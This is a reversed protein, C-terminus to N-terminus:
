IQRARNKLCLQLLLLGAGSFNQQQAGSFVTVRWKPPRNSNQHGITTHKLKQQGDDSLLPCTIM